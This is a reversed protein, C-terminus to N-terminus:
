GHGRATPTPAGMAPRIASLSEAATRPPAPRTAKLAPSARRAVRGPSGVVGAIAQRIASHPRPNPKKWAGLLREINDEAGSERLPAAPPINAVARRVPWVM